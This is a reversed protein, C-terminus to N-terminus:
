LDCVLLRHQSACEEGPIVKINTVSKRFHKPYDIQTRFDGSQYTVLHSDRKIFWTNGVFIMPQPLNLSERVKLTINVMVIAVMSTRMVALLPVLMGMETGLAFYFMPVPFPRASPKCNTM